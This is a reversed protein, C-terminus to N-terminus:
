RGGLPTPQTEADLRLQTPANPGFLAPLREWWTYRLSALRTAQCGRTAEIIISRELAHLDEVGWHSLFPVLDAYPPFGYADDANRLLAEVIQRHGLPEQADPERELLVLHHLQAQNAQVVWPILRQIPYKPPPILWQVFANLSAAPLGSQALWIGFHRGTRSHLRSQVILFLREHWHLRAARVARLTHASITLPKPYALLQGHRNLLTMDDSLFGWSRSDLTQLITTTKGTDTAATILCARGQFTVAAAHVLAYGKRVLSWRLTPEVVNTYLVHPSACVLESAWIHFADGREVWIHFGLKGLGDHYTFSDTALLRGPSGRHVFVDPASDLIPIAFSELEPLRIDSQLGLLGHIQYNHVPIKPAPTVGAWIWLQSALFRVATLVGISVLNALIYHLGMREVLIALLPARLVLALNNVVLYRTFRGALGFRQGQGPFVFRDHLLFNWSTSTQTALIASLLYHLGAADTLLWLALTNVFLGSVGVALFGPLRNAGLRQHLSRGSEHSHDQSPTASEPVM